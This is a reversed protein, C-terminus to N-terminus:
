EQVNNNYFREIISKIKESDLEEIGSEINKESGKKLFQKFSFIIDFFLENSSELCINFKLDNLHIFDNTFNAADSLMRKTKKDNINILKKEVCFGNLVSTQNNNLKELKITEKTESILSMFFVDQLLRIMLIYIFINHSETEQAKKDKNVIEIIKDIYNIDLEESNQIIDKKVKDNGNIISNLDLFLNKITLKHTSKKLHLYKTLITFSNSFLDNINEKDKFLSLRERYYPTFRIANEIQKPKFKNGEKKIIKNINEVGRENDKLQKIEIINRCGKEKIKAKYTKANLIKKTLHLIKMDHTLFILYINKNQESFEIFYKFFSLINKNDFSDFIDDIILLKTEKTENNINLFIKLLDLCKKEGKSMLVEYEENSKPCVCGEKKHTKKNIKITNNNEYKIEYNLNFINNFLSIHKKVIDKKLSEKDKLKNIEKGKKILKNIKKIAIDDEKKKNLFRIVKLYEIFLNSSQVREIFVENTELSEKSKLIKILKNYNNEDNYFPLNEKYEEFNSSTSVKELEKNIQDLINFDSLLIDKHKRELYNITEEIKENENLGNYFSTFLELFFVDQFVKQKNGFDQIRVIEKLIEDHESESQELEPSKLVSNLASMLNDSMKPQSIEKIENQKLDTDNLKVDGISLKESLAKTFSSKMTGNPAYITIAKNNSFILPNAGELKEIGYKKNIKIHVQDKKNM